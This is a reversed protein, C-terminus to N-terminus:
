KNFNNFIAWALDQTASEHRVTLERILHENFKEAETDPCLTNFTNRSYDAILGLFGHLLEHVLCFEKEKDDRDLWATAFDIQIRRYDYQIYVCALQGDNDKTSDWLNIDLFLCWQPVLWLYKNLPTEIQTKNNPQITPNWNINM